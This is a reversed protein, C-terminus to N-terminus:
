TGLSRRIYDMYVKKFEKIRRQAIPLSKKQVSVYGKELIKEVHELNVVFAAHTRFFDFKMIYKEFEALTGRCIYEKGQISYVSYYNRKSEVYTISNVDILKIGETTILKIQREPERMKELIRKLVKPLEDAIHSKRLYAFPYFEFASYVFNDYASMFIIKIDKYEKCIFKAVEFGNMNPMDIDLLVVDVHNSKIYEILKEGCGFAPGINIEEGKPIMKKCENEVINRLLILFQSNDDCFVINLMTREERVLKINMKKKMKIIVNIMRINLLIYTFDPYM